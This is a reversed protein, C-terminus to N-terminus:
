TINKTINTLNLILFSILNILKVYIIHIAYNINLM